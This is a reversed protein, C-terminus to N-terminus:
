SARRSTVGHLDGEDVILAGSRAVSSPKRLKWIFDAAEPLSGVVKAPKNPGDQRIGYDVFITLCGAAHGAEVDRWRDGVVYSRTLDIDFAAAAALIM